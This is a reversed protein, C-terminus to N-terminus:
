TSSPAWAVYAGFLVLEGPGFNVVDLGQLDARLRAGDALLRRGVAVGTIVLQLLFVIQDSVARERLARRDHRPVKGLITSRRVKNTRTLEDDDADLEKDFLAFAHIRAAGPVDENV